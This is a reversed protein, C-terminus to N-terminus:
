ADSDEGTESVSEALSKESAAVNKSGHAIKARNLRAIKAESVTCNEVWIPRLEGEMWEPLDAGCLVLLPVFRLRYRTARRGGAEYATAVLVGAARLMALTSAVTRISTRSKAALAERGPHMEGKAKHHFWHNVVALTIARQSRSLDSRNIAERVLRRFAHAQGSKFNM